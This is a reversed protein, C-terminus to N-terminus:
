LYFISVMVPISISELFLNNYNNEELAYPFINWDCYDEYPWQDEEYGCRPILFCSDPDIRQYYHMLDEGSPCEIDEEMQLRRFAEQETFFPVSQPTFYTPQYNTHTQKRMNTEKRTTSILIIRM